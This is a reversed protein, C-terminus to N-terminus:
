AVTFRDRRLNTFYPLLIDFDNPQHVFISGGEALLEGLDEYQIRGGLRQVAESLDGGVGLELIKTVDAAFAEVTSKSLNSPPISEGEVYTIGERKVAMDTSPLSFPCSRRYERWERKQCLTSGAVIM